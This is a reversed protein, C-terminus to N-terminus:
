PRARPRRTAEHRTDGTRAANDRSWGASVCVAIASVGFGLLALPPLQKGLVAFGLLASVGPVLYFLAAVRGAQGRRIMLLM